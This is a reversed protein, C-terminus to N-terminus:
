RLYSSLGGEAPTSTHRSSITKCLMKVPAQSRSEVQPHSRDWIEVPKRVRFLIRQNHRQHTLNLNQRRPHRLQLSPEILRRLTRAIGARRRRLRRLGITRLLVLGGASALAAQPALATPTRQGRIGILEDDGPRRRTPVALGLEALVVLHERATVVLDIQRRNARDDGPHLAIGAMARAAAADGQRRHGVAHLFTRRKGLADNGQGQVQADGVGDAVLAQHTQEKIQEIQRQAM